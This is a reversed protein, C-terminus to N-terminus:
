IREIWTRHTLIKRPPTKYRKLKLLKGSSTLVALTVNNFNVNITIITKSKRPKVIRKFYVAVHVKDEVIKM